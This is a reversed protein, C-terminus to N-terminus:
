KEGERAMAALLADILRASYELALDDTIRAKIGGVGPLSRRIDFGTSNNMFTWVKAPDKALGELWNLMREGAVRGQRLQNRGTDKLGKLYRLIVRWDHQFCADRVVRRLRGMQSKAPKRNDPRSNLDCVTELLRADLEMRLMRDAMRQALDTSLKDGDPIVFRQPKVPLMDQVQIVPNTQWNLALRGFGEARREGVGTQVLEALREAVGEANDYVFVSGARIAQDQCLPLNWTRNFGGALRVRSFAKAHECVLVPKLSNTWGGSVEDRILADSLLTVVIKGGGTDDRLRDDPEFEYWADDERLNGIRVRGYGALHSGGLNLTDTAALIKGVSARLRGAETEDDGTFVVATAFTQGASLAHIRFVSRHDETASQQRDGRSIHISVRSTPSYFEVKRGDKPRCFPDRVKRWQVPSAEPSGLAFDYLLSAQDKPCHWSFPTPLCRREDSSLPYGNLYCVGGDFFLTRFELDSADIKGGTPKMERLYRGIVAGRLSSGPIFDLGCASNPDGADAEKVLVPELLEM